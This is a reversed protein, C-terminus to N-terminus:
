ANLRATRRRQVSSPINMAERYKAVTRRACEIGESRLARVIADDSLTRRKDEAGILARIRSRVAEAGHAEGGDVAALAATFFYKLEFVGRPTEIFKNATVRSVTSEHLDTAAAVDRLVLPRLHAPGDEFFRHQRRVIESAVALVTRARQDLTRELWSAARLQGDVYRRDEASQLSRSLLRHYSRNVLVKPLMTPNLTVAWGGEPRARVLIEPVVQEADAEQFRLGPKPDLTRLESVMERLRTRDVACLRVLRELDGSAVLPLNALLAQMPADLRGRDNLQAALCESLSRAFLGAPDFGQVRKLVAEARDPAYGCARAVEAVDATLYGADDLHQLLAFALRRDEPAALEIRIQRGVLEYLSPAAPISDVPDFATSIADAKKRRIPWDVASWPDPPEPAAAARDSMPAADGSVDASAPRELFPNKEIEQHAYDLVDQASMQLLRIAQQLQPTMALSQSQRLQLRHSVAMANATLAETDARRAV